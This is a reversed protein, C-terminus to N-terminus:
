TFCASQFFIRIVILNPYSSLLSVCTEGTFEYYAEDVLVPIDPFSQLLDEIQELSVSTGTPNNPNILVILRTKTNVSEKLEQHPFHFDAPFQPGNLKCGLTGATQNYMQFGPQVMAAEEGNELLSRMIIDIAQDSGNTLLLNEAPVSSYNGLKELFDGYIPYIHFHSNLFESIKKIVGPPPPLPSENFDMLLFAEPNRNELPPQYPSMRSIADRVKISQKM